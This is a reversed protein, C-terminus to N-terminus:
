FNDVFYRVDFFNALKNMNTICIAQEKTHFKWIFTHSIGTQESLLNYSGKRRRGNVLFSSVLYETIRDRLESELEQVGIVDYFQRLREKFDVVEIQRSVEVALAPGM